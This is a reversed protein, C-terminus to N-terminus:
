QRIRDNVGNSIKRKKETARTNRVPNLSGTRYGELDVTIYNYGLSKLKDVIRSRKNILRALDNKEVEIRCLENQHRLRVQKFGEKKLYSEAKHVKRLLQGSIKTGYPIRSALCALSPKNWTELKLKKSLQRIEEKTLGAECLPSRIRLEQKAIEGARYDSKDSHNSADIVVGLKFEKSINKLKKFLEKKCFYCRNIPNSVFKKNELENVEIVKHRVGLRRALRKASQLEEKSFTPSNATVALLKDKPLLESAVKLLFTSDVGGSFAILCSDYRSIIKKLKELKQNLSLIKGGNGPYSLDQRLTRLCHM